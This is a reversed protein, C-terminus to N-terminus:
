CDLIVQEGALPTFAEINLNDRLKQALFMAARPEGMLLFVKKVTKATDSVFEVLHDSDKHGSYGSIMEVHAKIHVDEGQIHIKKTGNQISRGLTGVSQYGILLITNNAHPLYNKEHHLIRGGNSMGSGAMIIKPDPVNLIAKSDDTEPTMKLGIFDFIDDGANIIRLATPNFYKEYKRYVSTLKIALPSDLFIPM